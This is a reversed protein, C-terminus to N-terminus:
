SRWAAPPAEATALLILLDQVQELGCGEIMRRSATNRPSVGEQIQKAGGVQRALDIVAANLWRGLGHGQWAAAVAVSAAMYSGHFAAGGGAEEMATAAGVVRGAPDILALTLNRQTRGRMFYGPLPPLGCAAILEQTAAVLGPPTAPDIRLSRLGLRDPLGNDAIEAAHAFALETTRYLLFTTTELGAAVFGARVGEVRTHPLFFGVSEFRIALALLEETTRGDTALLSTRNGRSVLGEIAAIEALGGLIAAQARRNAISGALEPDFDAAM